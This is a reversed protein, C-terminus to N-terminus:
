APIAISFATSFHCWILDPHISVVRCFQTRPLRSSTGMHDEIYRLPVDRDSMRLVDELSTRLVEGITRCTVRLSTGYRRRLSTESLCGWIHDLIYSWPVYGVSTRLVDKYPEILGLFTWSFLVETHINYYYFQRCLVARQRHPLLSYSNSAKFQIVLSKDPIKDFEIQDKILKIFKKWWLKRIKCCFQSNDDAIVIFCHLDIHLSLM